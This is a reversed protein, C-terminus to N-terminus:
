PMERRPRRVTYTPEAPAIAHFAVVVAFGGHGFVIDRIQYNSRTLDNLAAELELANMAVVVRWRDPANLTM